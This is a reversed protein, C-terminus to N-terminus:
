WVVVQHWYTIYGCCVPLSVMGEMRKSPTTATALGFMSGNSANKLPLGFKESTLFDIMAGERVMLTLLSGSGLGISYEPATPCKSMLDDMRVALGRVPSFRDTLTAMVPTPLMFSMVAGFSFIPLSKSTNGALSVSLVLSVSEPM